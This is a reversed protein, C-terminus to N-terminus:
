FICGGIQKPIQLLKSNRCCNMSDLKLNNRTINLTICYTSNIEKYKYLISELLFM